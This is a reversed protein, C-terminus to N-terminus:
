SDAMEFRPLFVQFTSGEGPASHVLVSGRHSRVIGQVAALGLGRGLFKTTYFPDFIRALAEKPIGCGSDAVELLVYVGPKLSALDGSVGEPGVNVCSTAIHVSGVQDKLSESANTLLNMVLQRMQSIDACIPPLGRALSMEFAVKRALTARLLQVTEEVVSNLSVPLFAGHAGAGAYSMLLAIIESARIAVENIRNVNGCAPAVPPLDSLALDAEALITGMLNNFNHALGAVMVGLSELKQAAALQEQSRKLDTIDMMIGVYGAFSGGALCRPTGSILMWRYEGDARRLRHQATYERHAAAVTTFEGANVQLDDPHVLERWGDGVLDEPQRGSFTIAYRNVFDLKHDPGTTWVVVPAADAMSRFREETERLAQEVCIREALETVLQENAAQLESTREAVTQELRLRLRSLELHTGIRALLEEKRFPKSIFDVAGMRLGEVLEETEHLASIFIIPIDRSDEGAKLRRCVEFGDMGPMRVDLLILEPPDVSVSTLALEGGDAPRVEYGEATLIATLMVLSEPSDDVALITGKLTL